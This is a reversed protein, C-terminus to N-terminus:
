RASRASRVRNAYPRTGVLNRYHEIMKDEAAVFDETPAWYVRLSAAYPIVEQGGRVRAGYQHSYFEALRQRLPRKTRGVYLVIQGDDRKGPEALEILYVGSRREPIPTGWTVPGSPSLGAAKGEEVTVCPRLTMDKEGSSVGCLLFIDLSRPRLLRAQESDSHATRTQTM